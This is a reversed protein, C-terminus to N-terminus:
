KWSKWCQKWPEQRPLFPLSIM